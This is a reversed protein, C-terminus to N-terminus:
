KQVYTQGPFITELINTQNSILKISKAFYNKGYLSETLFLNCNVFHARNFLINIEQFAVRYCCHVSCTLIKSGTSECFVEFLMQDCGM